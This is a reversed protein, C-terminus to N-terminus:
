GELKGAAMKLVDAYKEKPIDQVTKCDFAQLVDRVAAASKRSKLDLLAAHVTDFPIDDATVAPAPQPEPQAKPEPNSVAEQIKRIETTNSAKVASLAKNLYDLAELIPPEMPFHFTYTISSM